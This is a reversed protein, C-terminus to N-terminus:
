CNDQNNFRVFCLTQHTLVNLVHLKNVQITFTVDLDKIDTWIKRNKSKAVVLCVGTLSEVFACSVLM